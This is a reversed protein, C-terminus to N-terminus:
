HCCFLFFTHLYAEFYAVSLACHRPYLLWVCFRHRTGPRTCEVVVDLVVIIDLLM